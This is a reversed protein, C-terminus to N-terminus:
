WLWFDHWILVYVGLWFNTVMHAVICDWMSRTFLMWIMILSFWACAAVLEAPHSLPGYAIGVAIAAASIQGFPLEWWRPETVVRLVFGRLFFEEIVPVVLALGVMRTLIFATLGIGQGEFHAYPDFGVRQGLGLLSGLGIPKLYTNELELRCISVWLVVGVTGVFVSWPNVRLPFERYGPWVFAVAACTLLLRALYIMPYTRHVTTRRQLEQARGEVATNASRTSAPTRSSRVTPKPELLGALMFVGLPLVFVLWRHRSLLGWRKTKLWAEYAAGTNTPENHM